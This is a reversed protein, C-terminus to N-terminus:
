SGHCTAPNMSPIHSTVTPATATLVVDGAADTVWGQAEVIQNPVSERTSSLATEGVSSRNEVDPELTAWNTLVAEGSLPETPNPPLGGRGTIIFENRAVSEADSACSQAILGSADILDTPLNVLGRSPDVDPTNITVQGSLSPDTQSIATIDSSSLKIPDLQTPDNTNLLTQLDELNREALGFISQATITVEGGQGLFANAKIDSNESPIAVIFQAKDININGGTGGFGAIGASTSINSQHRLLLLDPNHLAINGGNGSATEAAIAGQDLRITQATIDINGAGSADSATSTSSVTVAAGDQVLLQPTDIQISGGQGKAETFVGELGSVAFLGSPSQGDLSEGILEVSEYAKVTLTGGSGESLTATSLAAGDRIILRQTELNLNGANGLAAPQVSTLIGSVLESSVPSTGSLEVSDSVKVTLTGGSGTGRTLATIQGGDRVILRRTGINLNGGAGSVGPGVDTALRSSIQGAASSGSLEVSETASVTLSGAAGLGFTGTGIQAGNLILLRDTAIDLNGGVGTAGPYVQNFIGSPVRGDATTNIAEV